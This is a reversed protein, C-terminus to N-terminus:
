LRIPTLWYGKDSKGQRERQFQHLGFMAAMFKENVSFEGPVGLYIRNENRQRALILHHYQYFGHLLFHNNGWVWNEPPLRGIDQLSICLVEWASPEFPRAAPFLKCLMRWSDPVPASEQPSFRHPEPRKPTAPTRDQNRVSEMAIRDNEADMQYRTHNVDQMELEQSREARLSQASMDRSDTDTTSMDTSVESQMGQPAEVLGKECEEWTETEREGTERGEMRREETERDERKGHNEWLEGQRIDEARWPGDSWVSLVFNERNKSLLILGSLNELGIGRSLLRELPFSWRRERSGREMEGLPVLYVGDPECIYGHLIMDQALVQGHNLNVGIRCVGQRAEVKAFGLNRNREGARYDYLYSIFRTFDAM